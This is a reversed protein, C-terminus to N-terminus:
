GRRLAIAMQQHPWGHYDAVDGVPRWGLREFFAVNQPQIYAIMTQGGRRGASEVAFRVLPAGVGHHRFEPPVALRDGKWLGDSDLPYIRVAGAVVDGILGVIHLAHADHEDRDTLPFIAQEEVFTAHRIAYHRELEEAGAAFRCRVAAAGPASRSPSRTASVAV